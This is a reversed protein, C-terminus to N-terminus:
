TQLRPPRMFRKAAAMATAQRAARDAAACSSGCAAQAPTPQTGRSTSSRGTGQPGADAPRVLGEGARGLLDLGEVVLARTDENMRTSRPRASRWWARRSSGPLREGPDRERPRVRAEVVVGRGALRWRSASRSAAPASSRTLARTAARERCRSARASRASLSRKVAYLNASSAASTASGLSTSSSGAARGHRPLWPPRGRAARSRPRPGTVVQLTSRPRRRVVEGRVVVQDMRVLADAADVVGELM